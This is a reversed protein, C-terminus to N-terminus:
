AKPRGCRRKLLDRLDILDDKLVYAAAGAEEAGRRLAAGDHNTVIVVIAAPDRAVIQRTACLGDIGPLQVDMLVVDPTTSVFTALADTGNDCEEFTAVVGDLLRKLLRRVEPDDDVILLRGVGRSRQQV